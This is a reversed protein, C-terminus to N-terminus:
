RLAAGACGTRWAKPLNLRPGRAFEIMAPAALVAVLVSGADQSESDEKVRTFEIGGVRGKLWQELETALRNAEAASAANVAIRLTTNIVPGVESIKENM